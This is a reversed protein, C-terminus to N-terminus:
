YTNETEQVSVKNVTNTIDTETVYVKTNKIAGETSAGQVAASYQVPPIITSALASASPNIAGSAIASEMTQSKIKAIQAGGLAATAATQVAGLIFSAPAPLAMSSTWAAMIGSLMNMTTAAIQLKKQQEFGEKNSVDQEQSLANLMTGIGGLATAAVNGYAEWGVKGETKVIDMTQQFALQFQDLSNIWGSTLGLSSDGFSSMTEKLGEFFLNGATEIEQIRDKWEQNRAKIEADAIIKGMKVGMEELTETPLPQVQLPVVVGLLESDGLEARRQAILDAEGREIANLVNLETKLSELKKAFEEYTAKLINRETESKRNFNAIEGEYHTIEVLLEWYEQDAETYDRIAENYEDIKKQMGEPVTMMLRNVEQQYANINAILEGKKDGRYFGQNYGEQITLTRQLEDNYRKHEEVIKDMKIKELEERRKKIAVQVEEEQQKWRQFVLTIGAIAASIGLFVKPELVTKLLKAAGTTSTISNRLKDMSKIATDIQSLGQVVAILGQMKRISDEIAENEIGMAQLAGNVASFAGVLGATVNSINGVMDGFDSSAGKVSENIEDIQHKLEGAKNAAQLFEDSGEDLNAMQDKFEKLEKRLDKISKLAPNTDVKVVNVKTTKSM